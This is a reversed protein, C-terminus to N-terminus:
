GILSILQSFYSSLRLCVTLELWDLISTHWSNNKDIDETSSVWCGSASTTFSPVAQMLFPDNFSFIKNLNIALLFLVPSLWEPLSGLHHVFLMLCAGHLTFLKKDEMTGAAQFNLIVNEL